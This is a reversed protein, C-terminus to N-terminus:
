HLCRTVDSVKSRPWMLLRLPLTLSARFDDNKTTCFAAAGFVPTSNRWPELPVMLLLRAVYYSTERRWTVDGYKSWDSASFNDWFCVCVCVCLILMSDPGARRAAGAFIKVWIWIDSIHGQNKHYVSKKAPAARLAAGALIDIRQTDTQRHTQRDSIIERGRIPRFDPVDRSTALRRM